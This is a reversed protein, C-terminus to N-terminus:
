LENNKTNAASPAGSEIMIEPFTAVKAADILFFSSMLRSLLLRDIQLAIAM